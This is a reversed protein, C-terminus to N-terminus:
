SPDHVSLDQLITGCSYPLNQGPAAICPRAQRRPNRTQSTANESHYQVLSALASPTLIGLPLDAVPESPLRLERLESRIMDASIRIQAGTSCPTYLAMKRMVM